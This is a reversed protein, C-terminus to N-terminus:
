PITGWALYVDKGLKQLKSRNVTDSSILIGYKSNGDFSDEYGLFVRSSDAVLSTYMTRKFLKIMEIPVITQSTIEPYPDTRKFTSDFVVPVNIPEHTITFYSFYIQGDGMLSRRLIVETHYNKAFSMLSDALAQHLQNNNNYYKKLISDANNCCTFSLTIAFALIYKM